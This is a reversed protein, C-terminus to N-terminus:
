LKLFFIGSKAARKPYQGRPCHSAFLLAKSLASRTSVDVETRTIRDVGELFTFGYGRIDVDKAIYIKSLSTNRMNLVYPLFSESPFRKRSHLVRFWHSPTHSRGMGKLARAVDDRVDSRSSTIDEVSKIVADKMTQSRAADASRFRVHSIPYCCRSIVHNVRVPNIVNKDCRTSASLGTEYVMQIRGHGFGGATAPPYPALSSVRLSSALLTIAAYRYLCLVCFLVVGGTSSIPAMSSRRYTNRRM